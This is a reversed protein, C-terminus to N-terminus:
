DKKEKCPYAVEWRTRCKLCVFHYTKERLNDENFDVYYVYTKGGYINKRKSIKGCTPCIAAEKLFAKEEDFEKQGQESTMTIKKEIM